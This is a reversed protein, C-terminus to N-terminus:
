CARPTMRVSPFISCGGGCFGTKVQGARERAAFCHTADCLEFHQLPMDARYDLCVIWVSIVYLTETPTQQRANRLLSSVRFWPLSSGRTTSTIDGIVRMSGLM